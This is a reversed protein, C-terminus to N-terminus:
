SSPGAVTSPPRWPTISGCPRFIRDHRGRWRGSHAPYVSRLACLVCAWRNAGTPRSEKQQTTQGSSSKACFEKLNGITTRVPLAPPSPVSGESRSTRDQPVVNRPTWSATADTTRDSRHAPGVPPLTPNSRNTPDSRRNPPVASGIQDTARGTAPHICSAWRSSHDSRRQPPRAMGPCALARGSHSEGGFPAASSEAPSYGLLCVPEASAKRGWSASGASYYPLWHPSFRSLLNLDSRAGVLSTGPKGDRFHVLGAPCRRAQEKATFASEAVTLARRRRRCMSPRRITSKRNQTTPGSKTGTAPRTSPPCRWRRPPESSRYLTPQRLILLRPAPLQSPRRPPPPRCSRGKCSHDWRSPQPWV